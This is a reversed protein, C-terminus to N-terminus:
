ALEVNMKFDFYFLCVSMRTVNRENCGYFVFALIDTILQSAQRSQLFVSSESEDLLICGM